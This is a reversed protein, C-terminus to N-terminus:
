SPTVVLQGSQMYIHISCPIECYVQFTGSRSAVFQFHLVQQPHLTNAQGQEYYAIEFSHAQVDTNCVTINVTEGQTITMKPWTVGPTIGAGHLESENWGLHSAVMLFGGAAKTCGAPLGTSTTSSGISVVYLSAVVAAGILAVAVLVLTIRRNSNL